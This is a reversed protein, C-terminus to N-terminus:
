NRLGQSNGSQPCRRAIHGKGGGCIFCHNRVITLWVTRLSIQGLDELMM